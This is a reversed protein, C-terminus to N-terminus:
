GLVDDNEGNLCQDQVNIGNESVNSESKFIEDKNQGPSPLLNGNNPVLRRSVSEYHSKDEFDIAMALIDDDDGIPSNSNRDYL